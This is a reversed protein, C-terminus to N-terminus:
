RVYICACSNAIFASGFYASYFYILAGTACTGGGGPNNEDVRCSTFQDTFLNVLLCVFLSMLVVCAEPGSSVSIYIYIFISLINHTCM